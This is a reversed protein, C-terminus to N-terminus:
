GLDDIWLLYQRLPGSSLENFLRRDATVLPADARIALAVYLSDYFTRGTQAAVPWAMDSLEYASVRQIAFQHLHLLISKAEAAEMEKRRWRKWLVNGVEAFLLDPALLVVDKQLLRKAHISHVEPVFWKVAVSADVVYSKM